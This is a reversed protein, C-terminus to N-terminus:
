ANIRSLKSLTFSTIREMSRWRAQRPRGLFRIRGHANPRVPPAANFVQRSPGFAGGTAAGTPQLEPDAGSRPGSTASAPHKSMPWRQEQVAVSLPSNIGAAAEASPTLSRVPHFVRPSVGRSPGLSPPLHDMIIRTPPQFTRLVSSRHPINLTKSQHSHISNMPTPQPHSSGPRERFSGTQTLPALVHRISCYVAPCSLRAQHDSPRHCLAPWHGVQSLVQSNTIHTLYAHFRMPVTLVCKTPFSRAASLLLAAVSQCGSPSQVKALEHLASCGVSTERNQIHDHLTLQPLM